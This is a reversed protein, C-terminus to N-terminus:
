GQSLAGSERLVDLVSERDANDVPEATRGHLTAAANVGALYARLAARTAFTM